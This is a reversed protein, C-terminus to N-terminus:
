LHQCLEYLTKGTATPHIFAVLTNHAGPVPEEHILRIGSEKLRALEAHIDDVRLSIHHIGQGRKQIFSGIPGDPDTSELLEIAADGLRFMAVNVKQGPVTDRGILELGLVDRYLPIATELSDVAIGLHDLGLIM